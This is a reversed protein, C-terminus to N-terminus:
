SLSIVKTETIATSIFVLGSLYITDGTVVADAYGLEQQSEIGGPDQSMLVTAEQRAGALAPASPVATLACVLLAVAHKM